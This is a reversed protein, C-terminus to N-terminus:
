DRSAEISTVTKRGSWPRSWSPSWAEDTWAEDTWAPRAGGAFAEYADPADCFTVEDREILHYRVDRGDAILTNYLPAIELESRGIRPVFTELRRHYADRFLDASGFYYLGTCCLNSIRERDAAEVVRGPVDEDPRVFSAHYGGGAFVELYGDAKRPIERPFRYGPRVAGIDFIILPEYGRVRMEDLGLQVTEAPGRTPHICVISGTRIGLKYAENRVFGAEGHENRLVFMFPETKFYAQFSGVAHAFVSKGFAQLMFKPQRYGADTFRGNFGAMPIVIM